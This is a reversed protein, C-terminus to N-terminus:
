IKNLADKVDQIKSEIGNDSNRYPYKVYTFTNYGVDYVAKETDTLQSYNFTNSNTEIFTYIYYGYYLSKEMTENDKTIDDINERIFYLGDNIVQNREEKSDEELDAKAKATIEDIAGSTNHNSLTLSLNESTSFGYNMDLSQPMLANGGVYGIILVIFIIIIKNIINKSWFAKLKKM